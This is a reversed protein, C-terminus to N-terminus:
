LYIYQISTWQHIWSTRVIKSFWFSVITTIIIFYYIIYSIFLYYIYFYIIIHILKIKKFKKEINRLKFGEQIDNYSVSQIRVRNRIFHQCYNAEFLLTHLIVGECKPVFMKGCIQEICFIDDAGIRQHSIWNSRAKPFTISPLVELHLPDTKLTATKNHNCDHQDTWNLPNQGRKHNRQLWSCCSDAWGM